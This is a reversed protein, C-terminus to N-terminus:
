KRVEKVLHNNDTRDNVGEIEPVSKVPCVLCTRKRIAQQVRYYEKPHTAAFLEGPVGDGNIVNRDYYRELLKNRQKILRRCEYTRILQSIRQQSLGFKEGLEALTFDPNAKHYEYIDRNRKTLENTQM